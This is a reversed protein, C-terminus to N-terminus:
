SGRGWFFASPVALFDLPFSLLDVGFASDSVFDCDLHSEISVLCHFELDINYGLDM